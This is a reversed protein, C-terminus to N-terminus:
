GRRDQAVKHEVVPGTDQLIEMMRVCCVGAERLLGGAEGVAGAHKELAQVLFLLVGWCEAGSVKFKPRDRNGLM